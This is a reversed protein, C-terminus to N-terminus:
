SSGGAPVQTAEGKLFVRVAHLGLPLNNSWSSGLPQLSGLLSAIELRCGFVLLPLLGRRVSLVRLLWLFAKTGQLLNSEGFDPLTTQFLNVLQLELKAELLRALLEFAWPMSAGQRPFTVLTPACLILADELASATSERKLM